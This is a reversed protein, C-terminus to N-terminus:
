VSALPEPLLLSLDGPDLGVSLVSPHWSGHSCRPPGDHHRLGRLRPSPRLVPAGGRAGRWKGAALGGPAGVKRKPEERDDMGAGAADSLVPGLLPNPGQVAPGQPSLGPPSRQTSPSPQPSEVSLGPLSRTIPPSSSPHVQPAAGGGPGEPSQPPLCPETHGRKGLSGGPCGPRPSPTGPSRGGRLLSPVAPPRPPCTHQPRNVSGVGSLQTM